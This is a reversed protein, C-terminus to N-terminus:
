QCLTLHNKFLLDCYRYYVNTDLHIKEHENRISENIHNALDSLGLKVDLIGFDNTGLLQYLHATKPLKAGFKHKITLYKPLLQFKSAVDELVDEITTLEPYVQAVTDFGNLEFRITISRDVSRYQHQQQSTSTVASSANKDSQNLQKTLTPLSYM